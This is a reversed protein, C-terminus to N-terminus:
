CICVCPVLQNISQRVYRLDFRGGNDFKGGVGFEGGVGFSAGPFPIGGMEKPDGYQDELDSIEGSARKKKWEDLPDEGKKYKKTQWSWMDSQKKSAEQRREEIGVFYKTRESTSGKRFKLINQQKEWEEDLRDKGSGQAKFSDFLGRLATTTTAKATTATSSPNSLSLQNSAPVFASCTSALAVSVIVAKKVM